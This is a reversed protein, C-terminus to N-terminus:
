KRIYDVKFVMNTFLPYVNTDEDYFIYQVDITHTGPTDIYGCIEHYPYRMAGYWSGFFMLASRFFVQGDVVIRYEMVFHANDDKLDEVKYQLLASIWGGEEDDNPIVFNILHMSTWYGNDDFDSNSSRTSITTRAVSQGAININAAADIADATLTGSFTGEMAEINGSFSADNLEGM